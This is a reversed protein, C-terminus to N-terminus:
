CHLRLFDKAIVDICCNIGRVKLPRYNGIYKSGHNTWSNRDLYNLEHIWMLTGFTVRSDWHNNDQHSTLDTKQAIISRNHSNKRNFPLLLFIVQHM